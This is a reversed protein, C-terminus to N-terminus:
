DLSYAEFNFRDSYQLQLLLTIIFIYYSFLLRVNKARTEAIDQFVARQVLEMSAVAIRKPPVTEVNVRVDEDMFVTRVNQFLNTYKNNNNQLLM